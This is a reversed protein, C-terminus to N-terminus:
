ERAGTAAAPFHGAAGPEEHIGLPFAASQYTPVKVATTAPPVRKARMRPRAFQDSPLLAVKAMPRSPMTGLPKQM